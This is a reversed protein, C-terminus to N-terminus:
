LVLWQDDNIMHICHRIDAGTTVEGEGEREANPSEKPAVVSPMVAILM